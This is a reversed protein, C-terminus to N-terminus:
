THCKGREGRTEGGGDMSGRREDRMQRIEDGDTEVRLTVSGAALPSISCAVGRLSAQIEGIPFGTM